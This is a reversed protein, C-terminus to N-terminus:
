DYKWNEIGNVLKTARRQIGEILKIDKALTYEVGRHLIGFTTQNTGSIHQRVSLCVSLCDCLYVREITVISVENQALLHLSEDRGAYGEAIRVLLPLRQGYREVFRHVDCQETTSSWDVLEHVMAAAMLWGGSSTAGLEV